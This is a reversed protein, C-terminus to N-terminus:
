HWRRGLSEIIIGAQTCLQWHRSEDSRGRARGAGARAGPWAACLGSRTCRAVSVKRIM